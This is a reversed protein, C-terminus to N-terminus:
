SSLKMNAFQVLVFQAPVEYKNPTACNGREVYSKVYIQLEWSQNMNTPSELPKIIIVYYKCIWCFKVHIPSPSWIKIPSFLILFMFCSVSVLCSWITIEEFRTFTLLPQLMQLCCASYLFALCQWRIQPLGALGTLRRWAYLSRFQQTFPAVFYVCAFWM